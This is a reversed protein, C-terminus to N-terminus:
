KTPLDLAPRPTGPLTRYKRFLARQRSELPQLVGDVVIALPRAGVELPDSSWAVLDAGNGVSLGTLADQGFAKAPNITIADLAARRDMGGRVANGALQAAIPANHSWSSFMVLVGAEALLAPNEPRGHVQDFSGAGYVLPDVIVPVGAAALLDAVKWAEAGGDIVVRVDQAEALRLVAEIDAARDAGIWLPIRGEIVPQLAALERASVGDPLDRYAGGDIRARNRGYARAEELVEALRDLQQARSHGHISAVMAVSPDVVADAQRAGATRAWGAQGGILGGHPQVVVSTIGGLRIVPIRVSAPNYADTVVLTSRVADGDGRDDVTAQEMGVEALGASTGFQVLGPTIVVDAPVDVKECDGADVSAGVAAIRGGDTRVVLPDGEFSRGEIVLCQALAVGMVAWM